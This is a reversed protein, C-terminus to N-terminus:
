WRFGYTLLPTTKKLLAQYVDQVGEPDVVEYLGDVPLRGEALWRLATGINSQISGPARPEDQEPFEYEWGSRLRIFNHFVVNILDHATADTYRRWPSGVMVVEAGKGVARCCELTAGENGSCEVALRFTGRLPSEDAPIAPLARLGAAAAQTRRQEDPDVATVDYGCTAFIRAALHGIVGLGTVLVAQGPRAATTVLTTMPVAMLRAFCAVHPDLGEPVPLTRAAQIRQFQQHPGMCFRLDGVATGEVGPGVEEVRFVAAYGPVKRFVEMRYLALETGASILSAITRGNVEGPALPSTDREVAEYTANEPGRFRVGWMTSESTM